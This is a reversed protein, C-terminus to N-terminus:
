CKIYIIVLSGTAQPKRECNRSRVFKEYSAPKWLFGGLYTGENEPRDVM